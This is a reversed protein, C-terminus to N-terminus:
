VQLLRDFAVDAAALIRIGPVSASPYVRVPQCGYRLCRRNVRREILPIIHEAGYVLDGALLVTDIRVLNTLNVIAASLYEAEQALLYAAEPDGDLADVVERWGRFPTGSLLKPIAAYEELCGINGCACPRGDYRITTHGLESTFYGAGKLVKGKSIVGSGVGSDVLLLLFNSSGHGEPRGCHYAALCTANNALFVPLGTAEQLLPGIEVQHWLNFRPPNLIRGSEGDLPGPASIGIGLLRDRQIGETQSLQLITRQLPELKDGDKTIRIEGSSIINGGADVLGASCGDRNLYIGIVYYAEPCLMLPTSTRGRPNAVPPMERVLGENLLEAAILSTSARTLGTKRAIEARSLPQYRLLRLVLKRNYEKTYDANRAVVSMNKKREDAAFAAASKSKNYLLLM